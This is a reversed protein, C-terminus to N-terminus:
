IRGSNRENTKVYKEYATAWVDKKLLNNSRENALLDM